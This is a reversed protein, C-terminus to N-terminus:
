EIVGDWFTYEKRNNVKDYSIAKGHHSGMNFHETKQTKGDPHFSEVKGDLADNKFTGKEFVKGDPYYIAYPGDLEGFNYHYEECL